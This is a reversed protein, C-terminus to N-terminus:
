GDFVTPAGTGAHNSASRRRGGRLRRGAGRDSSRREAVDALGSHVLRADFGERPQAHQVAGAAIRLSQARPIRQRPPLHGDPHHPNPLKGTQPLHASRAESVDVSMEPPRAMHFNERLAGDGRATRRARQPETWFLPDGPRFHRAEQHPGEIKVRCRFGPEDIDLAAYMGGRDVGQASRPDGCAAPRARQPVTGAVRHRSGLHRTEQGPRHPDHLQGAVRVGPSQLREAVLRQGLHPIRGPHDPLAAAVREPEVGLSRRVARRLSRGGTHGVLDFNQPDDVAAHAHGVLTEVTAGEILESEANGPIGRHEGDVTRDRDLEALGGAAVVGTGALLPEQVCDVGARQPGSPRSSGLHLNGHDVGAHVAGVLVQHRTQQWALPAYGARVVRVVPPDVGVAVARMHGAYDGGFRLVSEVAGSDGGAGFNDWYLYVEEASWALDITVVDDPVGRASEAIGDIQSRVDDVHRPSAIPRGGGEACSQSDRVFEPDDGDGGGAVIGLVGRAM